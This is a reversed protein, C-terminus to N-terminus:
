KRWFCGWYPREEEKGAQEVNKSYKFHTHISPMSNMTSILHINKFLKHTRKEELYFRHHGFKNIPQHLELSPYDENKGGNKHAIYLEYDEGNQNLGEPVLEALKSISVIIVELVSLSPSHLTIHNIKGESDTMFIKFPRKDSNHDTKAILHNNLLSKSQGQM